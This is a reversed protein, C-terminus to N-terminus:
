EFGCLGLGINEAEKRKMPAVTNRCRKLAHCNENYHYKKAGSSECVYVIESTAAAALTTEVGNSSVLNQAAGPLAEDNNKCGAFCVCLMWMGSLLLTIRKM